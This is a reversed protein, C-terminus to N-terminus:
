HTRAKIEAMSERLASDLDRMTARSKETPTRQTDRNRLNISSAKKAAAAEAIAKEKAAKAAETQVRSLEKQRTVPNAWVAKDYADQLSAGAKLMIIMDDAVEDFYPHAPDSAFTAVENGIRAREAQMAANNSSSIVQKINHLEDQIQMVLPDYVPHASGDTATGSQNGGALQALDIGYQKALSKFYENKQSPPSYTLIHDAQLLTQVAKAPEIGLSQIRAMYPTMVEKIQRGTNADGKYQELGDLMQKERVNWYDRVEKPTKAWHEHMESPWTKPPPSLEADTSPAAGEGLNDAPINDAPSDDVHDADEPAPESDHDSSPFLDSALDNSRADVDFSQADNDSVVADSQNDAAAENGAGEAINESM